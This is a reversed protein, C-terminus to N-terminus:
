SSKLIELQGELKGFERQLASYEAEKAELQVIREKLSELQGTLKSNEAVHQENRQNLTSIETQLDDIKRDSVGMARFADQEVEKLEEIKNNFDDITSKVRKEAVQMAVKFTGNTLSILQKSATKLNKELADQIETPLEVEDNPLETINESKLQNLHQEWIEKIREPSGGGLQERIAFPTVRKELAEISRGADVIQEVSYEAVRGM